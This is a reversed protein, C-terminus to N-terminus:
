LQASGPQDSISFLAQRHEQSPYASVGDHLM